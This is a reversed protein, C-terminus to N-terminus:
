NTPPAEPDPTRGARSPDHPGTPAVTDIRAEVGDLIRRLGFILEEDPRDPENLVGARVVAHLHPFREADTLRALLGRYTDMAAQTTSGSKTAADAIDADQLATTRVFGSLLMITSLKEDEPLGTDQLVALGRDMWGIQYPTLPPGSLPVRLVWPHRRLVALEAWAWRSLGARWGEGPDPVTPPTEFVADVMLMLLEDKAAVYRYLSMTAAGLDTAVRGMSVTQLGDTDAIAVAADVIRPLSLGRKPGKGPRERLGWAMEISAPLGTEDQDDM